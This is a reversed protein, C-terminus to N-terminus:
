YKKYQQLIKKICYKSCISRLEESNKHNIYLIM